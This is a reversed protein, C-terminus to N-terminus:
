EGYKSKATHIQLCEIRAIHMDRHFGQILSYNFTNSFYLKKFLLTSLYNFSKIM